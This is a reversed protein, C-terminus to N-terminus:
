DNQPALAEETFRRAIDVIEGEIAFFADLVDPDFQRGRRELLIACAKEHSFAVKYCRESILADYVDAVAMIRASLPIEGGRMGYPYGSGDWCEHHFAAIEGAIRLFNDGQIGKSTVAIIHEGFLAHQKMKLFEAEDLRGPKLLIDDQVGVKGIDHLPASLYMWEIYDPTLLERHKGERVLELAVARVYNQTRRIHGGTEPDRTEAVAAMSEIAVRQTNNVRELWVFARQKEIAFRALSLLAFSLLVTMVGAAPSLYIGGKSALMGSCLVLLALLATSGALMVFIGPSYVFLAAILVACFLASALAAVERWEPERLYDNNLINGLGVAYTALGPFQNDVPTNILDNLGSASSGIYVLSSEPMGNRLVDLASISRYDRVSPRYRLLMTGDSNVPIAYSGVKLLLGMGDRDVRVTDVGAMRMLGALMLHPYVKDGFRLLLPIRRVRGDFDPKMNMFGEFELQSQIRFTNQLVGQAQDLQLQSSLGALYIGQKEEVSIGTKNTSDFLLQVAGIVGFQSLVAGLYADNNHLEAPINKLNLELGFENRYAERLTDLATRDAEPFIVDLGIVTPNHEAIKTVLQAIKYRPWPWQGVESLANDDIDVLVVPSQLTNKAGLVVFSDYFFADIQRLPAFRGWQLAGMLLAVLLAMVAMRYRQSRTLKM